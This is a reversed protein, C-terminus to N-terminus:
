NAEALKILEVRKKKLEPGSKGDPGGATRRRDVGVQQYLEALVRAGGPGGYFVFREM